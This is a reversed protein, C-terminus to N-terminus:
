PFVSCLGKCSYLLLFGCGDATKTCIGDATNCEGICSWDYRCNCKPLDGITDEPGGMSGENLMNLTRNANSLRFDTSFYPLEFLLARESYSFAQKLRPMREYYFKEALTEDQLLGVIGKSTLFHQLELVLERRDGKLTADNELLYNFKANWFREKQVAPLQSYTGKLASLNTVRMATIIHPDLGLLEEEEIKNKSCSFLFVMAMFLICNTKMVMIKKLTYM